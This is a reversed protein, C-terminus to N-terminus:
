CEIIDHFKNYDIYPLGKDDVGMVDEFQRAKVIDEGGYLHRNFVHQSFTNDIGNITIIFILDAESLDDFEYEALPSSEDIVHTVLWTLSFLPTRYRQLKLDYIKRINMGELTVEPRSVVAEVEASIIENSRKNGMRFQLVKEGNMQTLIMNKSFLVRSTPRSFKAFALGTAIAVFLIGSMTDFMVIIHAFNGQPLYHGYGITTSTQFSFVFADWFSAPNANLITDGGITYLAAFLTNITLYGLMFFFIFYRWQLIMLFHYFDNLPSKPTGIRKFKFNKRRRATFADNKM